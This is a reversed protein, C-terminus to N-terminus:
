LRWSVGHQFFFGFAASCDTLIRQSYHRTKGTGTGSTLIIDMEMPFTRGALSHLSDWHFTVEKFRWDGM